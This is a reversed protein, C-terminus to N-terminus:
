LKKEAIRHTSHAVYTLHVFNWYFPKLHQAVKTMYPATNSLM